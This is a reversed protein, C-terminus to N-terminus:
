RLEFVNKKQKKRLEPSTKSPRNKRPVQKIAIPPPTGALELAASPIHLAISTNYLVIVRVVTNRDLWQALVGCSHEVDAKGM